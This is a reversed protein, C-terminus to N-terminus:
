HGGGGPRQKSHEWTAAGPFHQQWVLVSDTCFHGPSERPNYFVQSNENISFDMSNEMKMNNATDEDHRPLGFMLNATGPSGQSTSSDWSPHSQGEGVKMKIRCASLDTYSSKFKHEPGPPLNQFSNCVHSEGYYSIWQGTCLLM